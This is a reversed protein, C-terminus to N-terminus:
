SVYQHDTRVRGDAGFTLVELGSGAISGDARSRMVWTLAIATGAHRVPDGAAEFFYEDEAVFMEYARSVRAFM